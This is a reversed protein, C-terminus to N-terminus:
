TLWLWRCGNHQCANVLKADVLSDIARRRSKSVTDAKPREKDKPATEGFRIEYRLRVADESCATVPPMDPRPRIVEGSEEIAQRLCDFLLRANRPIKQASQRAAQKAGEVSEVVLTTVLDGDIDHGLEVRALQISFTQGDEGDKNKKVCITSAFNGAGKSVEWIVDAGGDLSTHGRMGREENKGNHHVALIICDLQDAVRACSAVFSVMGSGNEEGALLTRSLTDIVVLGVGTVAKIAAVLVDADNEGIGLNPAVEILYFATGRPTPQQRRWAEIRKRLGRAGEAAIYVVAAPSVKRGAWPRGTAISLALDLAVFSKYTGPAGYLVGLGKSPLLEKVLWSTNPDFSIDDIQILPFREAPSRIEVPEGPPLYDLDAPELVDDRGQEAAGEEARCARYNSAAKACYADKEEASLDSYNQPPAAWAKGPSIPFDRQAVPHGDNM